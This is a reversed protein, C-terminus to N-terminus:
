LAAQAAESLVHRTDHDTLAIGDCGHKAALAILERPALLGDSAISHNHLDFNQSHPQNMLSKRCDAMM